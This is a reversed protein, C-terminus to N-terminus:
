LTLPPGRLPPRLQKLQGTEPLVAPFLGIAMVFAVLSALQIADIAGLWAATLSGFACPLEAKRHDQSKGSHPMNGPMSKMAAPEPQAAFGSCLEISMRGHETSIMYGTPVLLKLLLAALCLLMAAHRQQLLRRTAMVPLSYRM